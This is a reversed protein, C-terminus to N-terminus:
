TNDELKWTIIFPKSFNLKRKNQALFNFKKTRKYILFIYMMDNPVDKYVCLRTEHCFVHSCTIKLVGEIVQATCVTKCCVNIHM